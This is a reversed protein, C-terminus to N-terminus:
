NGQVRARHPDRYQPHKRLLSDAMSFDSMDGFVFRTSTIVQLSNLFMPHNVDDSEIVGPLGGFTVPDCLCLSRRPSLPFHLEIGRCALGLNGMLGADIGNHL